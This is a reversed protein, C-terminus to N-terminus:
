QRHSHHDDDVKLDDDQVLRARFREMEPETLENDLYATLLDDDDTKVPEISM